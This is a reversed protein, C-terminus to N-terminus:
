YNETIAQTIHEGCVKKNWLVGIAPAPCVYCTGSVVYSDNSSEAGLKASDDEYCGLCLSKYPGSWYESGSSIESGCTNCFKSGRCLRKVMSKNSM